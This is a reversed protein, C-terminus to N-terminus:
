YVSRTRCYSSQSKVLADDQLRQFDLASPSLDLFHLPFLHLSLVVITDSEYEKKVYVYIDKMMKSTIFKKLPTKWDGLEDLWM